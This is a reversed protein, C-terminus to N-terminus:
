VRVRKAVDKSKFNFFWCRTSLTVKDMRRVTFPSVSLLGPIEYILHFMCVIMYGMYSYVLFIANSVLHVVM